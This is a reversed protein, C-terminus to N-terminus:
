SRVHPELAAVGESPGREMQCAAKAIAQWHFILGIWGTTLWISLPLSFWLCFDSFCNMMGTGAHRRRQIQLNAKLPSRANEVVSLTNTCEAM